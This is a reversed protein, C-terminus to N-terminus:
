NRDGGLLAMLKHLIIFIGVNKLSKKKLFIKKRKKKESALMEEHLRPQGSSMIYVNKTKTWSGQPCFPLAYEESISWASDKYHM